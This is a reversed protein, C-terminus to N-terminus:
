CWREICTSQAPTGGVSPSILKEPQLLISELSVGFFESIDRATRYLVRKQAEARKLSAISVYLGQEACQFAMQEQSLGLKRRHAKLKDRDLAVRGDSNIMGQGM